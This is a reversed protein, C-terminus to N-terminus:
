KIQEIEENLRIQLVKIPVDERVRNWAKITLAARVGVSIKQGSSMGMNAILKERLFYIPSNETLDLGTCLKNFFVAAMNEDKEAFLFHLAAAYSPSILVQAKIWKGCTYHCSNVLAPNDAVFDLCDQKNLHSGEKMLLHPNKGVRLNHVAQISGALKTANKYGNISLVDAVTRKRGSDMTIFTETSLGRLVLIQQSTGSKIIAHLRHQGDILAENVDFRIPDGNIAWQGRSMQDAYSDIARSNLRRNNSLNNKLYNAAVEPTIIEM